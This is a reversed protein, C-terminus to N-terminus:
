INLKIDMMVMNHFLKIKVKQEWGVTTTHANPPPAPAPPPALPTHAFYNSGHQQMRSEM